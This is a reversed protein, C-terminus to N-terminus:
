KQKRVEGGAAVGAKPTGPGNEERKRQERRVRLPWTRLASKQLILLKRVVSVVSTKELM